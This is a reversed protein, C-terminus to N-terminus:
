NLVTDMVRRDKVCLPWVEAKSIDNASNLEEDEIKVKVPLFISSSGDIYWEYPMRTEDPFYDSDPLWQKLAYFWAAQVNECLATNDPANNVSFVAFLGGPVYCSKMKQPVYRVKKVSPGIIYRRADDTESLVAVMELGGGIRAFEKVSVEPFDKNTWYAGYEEPDTEDCEFVYGVIYFDPRKVVKPEKMLNLGRTKIYEWPSIGYIKSFAKYFGSETSLGSLEMATRLEGGHRMYKAAKHLRRTLIYQNVTYGSIEKFVRRISMYSYGFHEAIEEAKLNEYLNEEIYRKVAKVLAKKRKQDQM